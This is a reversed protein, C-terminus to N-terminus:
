SRARTTTAVRKLGLVTGLSAVVFGGMALAIGLPGLQQVVTVVQPGLVAVVLDGAADAAARQVGEGALGTILSVLDGRTAIWLTLGSVMTGAVGVFAAAALRAVRGTPIWEVVTDRASVHWPVFVPVQSMVRDALGYRPAILPVEALVSAVRKASSLQARCDPCGRVHERLPQVGFGSEEDLLLDFENPLLHRHNVIGGPKL